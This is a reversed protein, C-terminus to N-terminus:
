SLAAVDRAERERGMRGHATAFYLRVFTASPNAVIAMRLNVFAAEIEGLAIQARALTALSGWHNPDRPSLRMAHEIVARSRDARGAQLEFLALLRHAMSDNRNLTIAREAAAIADPLQNRFGFIWSRVRHAAAIKPELTLAKDVLEEARDVDTTRIIAGNRLRM